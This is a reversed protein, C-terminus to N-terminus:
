PRDDLAGRLQLWKGKRSRLLSATPEPYTTTVGIGNDPLSITREVLQVGRISLAVRPGGKSTADPFEFAVFAPPSWLCRPMGPDRGALQSRKRAIAEERFLIHPPLGAYCAIFPERGEHAGVIVTGYRDPAAMRQWAARVPADVTEPAGTMGQNQIGLSTVRLAAVRALLGDAGEPVANTKFVVFAYVQALGDQSYYLEGDGVRAGRWRLDAYKQAIQRAFDPAVQGAALVRLAGGVLIAVLLVARQVIRTSCRM